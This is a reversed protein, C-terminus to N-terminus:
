NDVENQNVFSSNVLILLVIHLIQNFNFYLNTEIDQNIEKLGSIHASRVFYSGPLPRKFFSRWIFTAGGITTSFPELLSATVNTIKM